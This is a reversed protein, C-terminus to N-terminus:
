AWDKVQLANQAALQEAEQKSVGRGEAIKKDGLFVGVKFYKDHDPGSEEVVAYTPTIKEIEQAKEQFHSKADQWLQKEVVENVSCLFNTAIFKRASEFGQDLYLAGIIAEVVNAIIFSRARGMDKAEGKSLLLFDNVGLKDAVSLLSVTNVVASRYATLVGEAETSFKQFLYETVALELVADGLFELRENHELGCDKHENIYSRHTFATQLLNINKFQVGIRKEFKSFDIKKIM